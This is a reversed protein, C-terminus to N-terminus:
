LGALLPWLVHLTFDGSFHAVIAAELGYTWYLWGFVVGGLGNLVIARAVVVADIPVGITVFAPLHGLGFLAAAVINATWLAWLGPHGDPTRNVFRGLWALLSLLFLRMITEESIGGYFSALFWKWKSVNGHPLKEKFEASLWPDFVYKQIIVVAVCVLVGALCARWVFQRLYHWDPKHALWGELFPLGLGIRNAIALGIAALMGYFVTDAVWEIPMLVTLPLPLKLDKLTNAQIALAYPTVLIISVLMAVVLVGLLRWNYPRPDLGTLTKDSM